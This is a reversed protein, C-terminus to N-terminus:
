ATSHFVSDDYIIARWCAGHMVTISCWIITAMDNAHPDHVHLSTCRSSTKEKGQQAGDKQV